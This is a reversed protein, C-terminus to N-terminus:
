PHFTFPTLSSPNAHAKREKDKNPIIKTTYAIFRIIPLKKPGEAFYHDKTTQKYICYTVGSELTKLKAAKSKSSHTVWKSLVVISSIKNRKQTFFM